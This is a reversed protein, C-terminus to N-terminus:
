AAGALAPPETPTIVFEEPGNGIKVGSIQMARKPDALMAEKNIEIKVRRFKQFKRLALAALVTDEGRITVKRPPVRWALEGSLLKVTKTKGEQTLTARNAEAWMQVGRSLDAEEAVLQKVLKAADEKAKAIADALSAAITEQKRQLEGIRAVMTTAEAQDRAAPVAEAQRKVSKKM